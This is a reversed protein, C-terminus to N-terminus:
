NITKKAKEWNGSPTLVEIATIKGSADRTFKIRANPVQELSFEDNGVATMKLKMGGPRLIFLNGGDESITREGYSGAYDKANELKAISRTEPAAKSQELKLRRNKQDFTLAFNQMMAAGVNTNSLAPFSVTPEAFEFSGLRITDKLRVQKIETENAVTRARGVVVPESALNSKEIVAAPLIFSGVLNGSDLHAKIKQNGVSLEVVAIGNSNEFNIINKDNAKPLEGTEIRVRKGPFDLTLLDEAFLDFALIGDIKPLNPSTNYDRTIAGIERFEKDGIKISDVKVVNLLRANRGSPDGAQTQGTIKLGLREVLSSDIRLRGQAGTDIAFLFPGKGNITVEVAPMLGRMKMPLDIATKQATVDTFGLFAIVLCLSFKIKKMIDGFGYRQGRM